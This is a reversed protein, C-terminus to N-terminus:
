RKLGSWNWRKESLGLVLPRWASLNRYARHFWVMFAVAGLVFTLQFVWSAGIVFDDAAEIDAVPVNGGDKFEVLLGRQNIRAISLIVLAVINVSVALLAVTSRGRIKQASPHRHLLPPSAAPFGAYPPPPPAVAEPNVASRPPPPPPPPPAFPSNPVSPQPPIIPPPPVIGRTPAEPPPPLRPVEPDGPTTM